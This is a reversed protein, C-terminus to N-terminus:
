QSMDMVIKIVPLALHLNATLQTAIAQDAEEGAGGIDMGATIIDVEAEVVPPILIQPFQPAQVMQLNLEVTAMCFQVMHVVEKSDTLVTQYVVMEVLQGAAVPMDVEGVELLLSFIHQMRYKQGEEEEAQAILELDAVM